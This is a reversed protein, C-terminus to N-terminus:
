RAPSGNREGGCYGASLMRNVFTCASTVVCAHMCAQLACGCVSVAASHMLGSIETLFHHQIGLSCLGTLLLM